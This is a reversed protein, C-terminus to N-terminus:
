GQRSKGVFGSVFSSRGCRIVLWREVVHAKVDVCWHMGNCFCDQHRPVREACLKDRFVIEFSGRAVIFHASHQAERPSVAAFSDGHLPRAHSDWGDGDVCRFQDGAVTYFVEDANAGAARHLGLDFDAVDHQGLRRRCIRVVVLVGEPAPVERWAGVEGQQSPGEVCPAGSANLRVHSVDEAGVNKVSLVFRDDVSQNLVADEGDLHLGGSEVGDSRSM